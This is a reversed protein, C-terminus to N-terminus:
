EKPESTKEPTRSRRYKEDLCPVIEQMVAPPVFWGDAPAADGKKMPVVARDGPIYEVPNRNTACGSVTVCGVLGAALWGAISRTPTKETRSARPEYTTAFASSSKKTM